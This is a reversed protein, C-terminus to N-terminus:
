GNLTVADVDAEPASKTFARRASVEEEPKNNENGCKDGRSRHIFPTPLGRPPAVVHDCLSFSLSLLLTHHDVVKVPRASTPLWDYM